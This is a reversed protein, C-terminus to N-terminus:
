VSSRTLDPHHANLRRASGEQPQDTDQRIATGEGLVLRHAAIQCIERARLLEVIARSGDVGREFRNAVQGPLLLAEAVERFPAASSSPPSGILTNNWMAYPAAGYACSAHSAPIAVAINNIFADGYSGTSDICARASGSSYPDLYSNFCNAAAGRPTTGPAAPKRAARPRVQGQGV